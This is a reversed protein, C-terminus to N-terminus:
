KWRRGKMELTGDVKASADDQKVTGTLDMQLLESTPVEVIATGKFDMSMKQDPKKSRMQVAIAFKANTGDMGLYELTLKGVEFDPNDGGFVDHGDEPKLEVVKGKTYEKGAVANRLKDPKGFRKEEKRVAEADAAPEVGIPTGASITYTKGELPSAGGKENAGSKQVKTKKEYTIKAKTVVADKVALVVVKKRETESIVMPVPPQGKVTINMALNSSKEENWTEGATPAKTGLKVSDAAAIAPVLLVLSLLILSRM